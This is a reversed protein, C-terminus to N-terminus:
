EYSINKNLHLICFTDLSSGTRSQPSGRVYEDPHDGSVESPLVSGTSFFAGAGKEQDSGM